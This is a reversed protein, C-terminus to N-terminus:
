KQKIKPKSVGNLNKAKMKRWKAAEKYFGYRICFQYKALIHNELHGSYMGLLTMARAAKGCHRSLEICDSFIKLLPERFSCRLTNEKLFKILYKKDKISQIHGYLESQPCSYIKAIIESHVEEIAGNYDQSTWNGNRFRNANTEDGLEDLADAIVYFYDPDETNFAEIIAYAIQKLNM